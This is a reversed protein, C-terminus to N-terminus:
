PVEYFDPRLIFGLSMANGIKSKKNGETRIGSLIHNDLVAVQHHRGAGRADGIKATSSGDSMHFKIAVLEWDWWTEVKTIYVGDDLTVKHEKGASSDGLDSNRGNRYLVKLYYVEDHARVIIEKIDGHTDMKKDEKAGHENGGKYILGTCPGVWTMRDTPIPQLTEPTIKLLTWLNATDVINTLLSNSYSSEAQRFYYNRNVYSDSTNRSNGRIVDSYFYTQRAVTDRLYYGKYNMLGVESISEIADKRWEIEAPVAVHVIHHKYDDITDELIKIHGHREVEAYDLEKAFLVRERLLAIHMTALEVGIGVTGLIYSNSGFHPMGMNFLALNRELWSRRREPVEANFYENLNRVLGDELKMLNDRKLDNIQGRVWSKMRKESQEILDDFNPKQEKWIVGVVSSIVGGVAPIKGLGWTVAHRAMNNSQAPTIFQVDKVKDVSDFMGHKPFEIENKQNLGVDRDTLVEVPKALWEGGQKFGIQVKDHAIDTDKAQGPDLDFRKGDLEVAYMKDKIGFVWVVVGDRSNNTIRWLNNIRM